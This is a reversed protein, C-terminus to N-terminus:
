LMRLTVEHYKDMQFSKNGEAHDLLLQHLEVLLDVVVPHLCEAGVTLDKHIMGLLDQTPHAKEEETQCVMGLLEVIQRIQLKQLGLMGVRLLTHRPRKCTDQHPQRDETPVDNRLAEQFIAELAWVIMTEVPQAVDKPNKLLDLRSDVVQDNM